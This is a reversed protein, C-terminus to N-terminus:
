AFSYFVRFSIGQEAWFEAAERFVDLLTERGEKDFRPVTPLSELVVVFGPQEGAQHVLETLCDYLADFNKGCQKPFLFSTAITEMVEAKTAALACDAYLFHLGLREAEAALDPVRFARISQVINARVSRFLNVTDESAIAPTHRPQQALGHSRMALVRKFLNADNRGFLDAAAVADYAPLNRSM